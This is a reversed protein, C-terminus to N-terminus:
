NNLLGVFIKMIGEVDAMMEAARMAAADEAIAAGIEYAWM